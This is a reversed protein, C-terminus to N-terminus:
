FAKQPRRVKLEDRLFYIYNKKAMNEEEFNFHIYKIEGYVKKLKLNRRVCISHISAYKLELSQLFFTNAYIM